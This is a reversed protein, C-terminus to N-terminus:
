NRITDLEIVNNNNKINKLEYDRMTKLIETSSRFTGSSDRQDPIQGVLHAVPDNRYKRLIKFYEKTTISIEDESKKKFLKEEFDYNQINKVSVLKFIHQHKVDEIKTILGPLGKFKYPGDSLPITKCFWANWKRGGFDTSAKQSNKDLIIIFEDSLKWDFKTESDVAFKESILPIHMLSKENNKLKTIQYSIMTQPLPPMFFINKSEASFMLSDTKFNEPSYFESKENSVDLYVFESKVENQKLSDPIYKYEYIFRTVQAQAFTSLLILVFSKCINLYGM